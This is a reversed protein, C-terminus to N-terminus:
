IRERVKKAPSGRYISFASLDSSAVSNVMLVSHNYCTVNQTVISRAGIWVGDEIIIKGLILDFTSKKYDHNGCLLMAGQSICVHSGIIVDDVNDIWVDEGIWVHNGISLKWPYKINVGPKLIVGRGIKAGFIRLLFIKLGIFPNWKSHIFIVNIIFWISLILKNGPNYWDNNYKALDKKM